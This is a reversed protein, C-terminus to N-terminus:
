SVSSIGLALCLERLPLTGCVHCYGYGTRQNFGFSPHRDGHKHRHPFPCPGSLWDGRSKYGSALLASAVRQITDPNLSIPTHITTAGWARRNLPRDPPLYAKFRDSAYRQDRLDLVRCLANARAPKTNRSGPLRLSQAVSLPDGGLAGSLGRLLSAAQGRSRQDLALPEDLWWYAHYGGGSAVLCSPAPDACQLRALAEASPDDVDVFLAPLAIAEAAGGRQWRTLGPRRLAVAFYAGWGLANARDLLQLARQLGPADHLPLHRSPTPHGPDPHIATLTLRAASLAACRALLAGLFAQRLDDHDRM